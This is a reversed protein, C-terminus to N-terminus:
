ALQEIRDAFGVFTEAVLHGGVGADADRQSRLM